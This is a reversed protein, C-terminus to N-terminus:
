KKKLQYDLISGFFFTFKIYKYVSYKYMFSFYVYIFKYKIRVQLIVDGEQHNGLLNSSSSPFIVREDNEMFGSTFVSSKVVRKLKM